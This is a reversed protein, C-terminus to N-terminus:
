RLALVASEVGFAQERLFHHPDLLCPLLGVASVPPLPSALGTSRSCCCTQSLTTQVEGVEQPGLAEIVSRGQRSCLYRRIPPDSSPHLHVAPLSCSSIPPM